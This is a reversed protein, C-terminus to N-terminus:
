DPYKSPFWGTWTGGSYRHNTWLGNDSGYVNVNFSWPDSTDYDYVYAPSTAYGGMSSWNTWKGGLTWRSWVAHDTGIIFEQKSGDPLTTSTFGYECIYLGGGRSCYDAAQAPQTALGLCAAATVALAMIKKPNM